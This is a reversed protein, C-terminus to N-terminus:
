HLLCNLSLLPTAHAKQHFQVKSFERQPPWLCKHRHQGLKSVNSYELNEPIAAVCVLVGGGPNLPTSASKEQEVGARSTEVKDIEQAVCGLSPQHFSLVRHCLQKAPYASMCYM